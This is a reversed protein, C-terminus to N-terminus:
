FPVDSMDIPADEDFTENDVLEEEPPKASKSVDSWEFSAQIKRQIWEPIKDFVTENHDEVDYVLTPKTAEFKGTKPLVSKVVAYGNDNHMVQVTCAKGVLDDIEFGELEEATFMKGRWSELDKRLNAKENLSCTYEKSVMGGKTEWQILIKKQIKDTGDENKFPTRQTGIGILAVCVAPHLGAELQEFTKSTDKVIM